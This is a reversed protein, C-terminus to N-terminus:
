ESQDPPVGDGTIYGVKVAGGGDLNWVREKGLTLPVFEIDSELEGLVAGPVTDDQEHACSGVELDDVDLVPLKDDIGVVVLILRENNTWIQLGIHLALVPTPEIESYPILELVRWYVKAACGNLLNWNISEYKITLWADDLKRLVAQLCAGIVTVEIINVKTGHEL